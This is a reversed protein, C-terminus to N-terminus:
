DNDAASTVPVSGIDSPDPPTEAKQTDLREQEREARAQAFRAEADAENQAIARKAEREAEQEKAVAMAAQVKLKEDAAEQKKLEHVLNGVAFGVATAVKAELTNAFQMSIAEIREVQRPELPIRAAKFMDYFADKVAVNFAKPVVKKRVAPDPTFIAGSYGEFMEGTPGGFDQKALEIFQDLNKQTPTDKFVQLRNLAPSVKGVEFHLAGPRKTGEGAMMNLIEQDINAIFQALKARNVEEKMM